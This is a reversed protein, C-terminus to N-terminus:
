RAWVMGASTANRRLHDGGFCARLRRRGHANAATPALRASKQDFSRRVYEVVSAIAPGGGPFDSISGTDGLRQHKSVEAVFGADEAFGHHNGEHFEDFM